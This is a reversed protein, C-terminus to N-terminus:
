KPSMEYEVTVEASIIIQGPAMPIMAAKAEKADQLAVFQLGSELLTHKSEQNDPIDAKTIGMGGGMGGFGGADWNSEVQEEIRIPSGLTMGTLKTLHEAKERAYTVALERASFQHQRQNTIRFQFRSVQSLGADFAESLFPEIVDFDTLRVEFSRRFNYAIPKALRNGYRRDGYDPAVDLDTLKVDEDLIAHKRALEIVAAAIKDNETKALLLQENRTDVVLDLVVEDPPVKIESRASVKIARIEAADAPVGAFVLFMMLSRM